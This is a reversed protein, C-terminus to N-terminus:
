YLQLLQSVFGLTLWGAIGELAWQESLAHSGQDQKRKDGPPPSTSDMLRSVWIVCPVLNDAMTAYRAFFGGSSRWNRCCMGPRLVAGTMLSTVNCSTALSLHAAATGPVTDSFTVCWYTLRSHSRNM